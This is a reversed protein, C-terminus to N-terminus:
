FFLRRFILLGTSTCLIFTIVAPEPIAVITGSIILDDGSGDFIRTVGNGSTSDWGYLRFDVTGTLNQYQSGVLDTTTNQLGTQAPFFTQIQRGDEIGDISSMLVMNSCGTSTAEGNIFISELNLQYGSDVQISFQLYHNEAIAGALTTQENASSIKFGYQDAATSENVGSGLTMTGTVHEASFTSYMTYPHINTVIGTGADLEVGNVDWATLIASRAIPTGMAVAIVVCLIKVSMKEM